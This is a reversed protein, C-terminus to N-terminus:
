SNLLIGFYILLYRCVSGNGNKLPTPMASIPYAPANLVKLAASTM